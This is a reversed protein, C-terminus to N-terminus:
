WCGNYLSNKTLIENGLIVDTDVNVEKKVAPVESEELVDLKYYLTEPIESTVSLTVKADPTIGVTGTRTVNFDKNASNKNWINTLNKDTYFNLEFASYKTGQNTYALSADSLGSAKLKSEIYEAICSIEIFSEIFIYAPFSNEKKLFSKVSKNISFIWGM